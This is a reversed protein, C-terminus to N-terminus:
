YALERPKLYGNGRILRLRSSLVRAVEELGVIHM